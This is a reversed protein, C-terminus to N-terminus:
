QSNQQELRLELEVDDYDDLDDHNYNDQGQSQDEELPSQLPTAEPDQLTSAPDGGDSSSGSTRM